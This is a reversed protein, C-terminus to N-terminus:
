RRKRKRKKKEVAAAETGTATPCPSVDRSPLARDTETPPASGLNLQQSRKKKSRSVTEWQEGMSPVEACLEGKAIVLKPKEDKTIPAVNPGVEVAGQEQANSNEELDALINYNPRLDPEKQLRYSTLKNKLKTIYKRKEDLQDELKSIKDAAEERELSNAHYDPVNVSTQSATSVTKM